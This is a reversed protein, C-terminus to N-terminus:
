GGLRERVTAAGDGGIRDLYAPRGSMVMALAESTGTVTPGPDGGEDTPDHVWDTDTAEWRLGDLLGPTPVFSERGRPSVIIGLAAQWPELPVTADLGQPEALDRLHICSDTFPGAWGIYWPKSGTRAPHRLEAAIQALPRDGLRAAHVDCARAMSRHRAATLLFRWSPVHM